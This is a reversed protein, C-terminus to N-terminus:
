DNTTIKQKLLSLIAGTELLELCQPTGFQICVNKTCPECSLKGLRIVALKDKGYPATNNENGAGFLVITETGLANALHAPGSDTSLLLKASALLEVLGKLSTKGAVSEIGQKVPLQQLVEDVFAKEKQGGILIINAKEQNRVASIIEIAKAPTLRRSSAESNINVVINEKKAFSHKLSVNVASREKGTYAELLQVYEDVRHIRRPKDYANTLLLNRGEKKYGIRKKTGTAYGMLASSFSDPLSIFLDFKETRRIERGFKWLGRVGDYEDRNFVFKHKVSPFFDLLEHIGKKAIVSVEAGTFFHPLQHIVGVSMVMDGLWNPLRVLIKM